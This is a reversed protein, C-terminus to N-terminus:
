AAGHGDGSRRRGLGADRPRGRYGACARDRRGPRLAARTGVADTLLDILGAVHGARAADVLADLLEEHEAPDVSVHRDEALHVRARRAVQRANAESIELARGIERFPYDFAERLIYVGREAPPLRELLLRVALALAENREAWLEPDVAAADHEPLGDGVSVERRARASTAANLAVRTTVTVLFGLRDRVQARDVGQWRIWVDQVIDEADPVRGLMQYAIGFLRPRVSEFDEVESGPVVDVVSVRM